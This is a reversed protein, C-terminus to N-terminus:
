SVIGGVPQLLGSLHVDSLPGPWTYLYKPLRTRCCQATITDLVNVSQVQVCSNQLCLLIHLSLPLVLQVVQLSLDTREICLEFRLVSTPARACLLM